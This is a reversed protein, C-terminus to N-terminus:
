PAFAIRLGESTRPRSAAPRGTASSKLLDIFRQYATQTALKRFEASYREMNVHDGILAYTASLQRYVSPNQPLCAVARKLWEIAEADHGLELAAEGAFLYFFGVGPDKPNLNIAYQIEDLGEKPRGLSVLVAGVQGHIYSASPNLEIARKLATLALLYQKSGGGLTGRAKHLLGKWYEARYSTPEEQLVKNLLV